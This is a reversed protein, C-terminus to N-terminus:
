LAPQPAAQRDLGGAMREVIDRAQSDRAIQEAMFTIMPEAIRCHLEAAPDRFRESPPAEVMPIRTCADGYRCSLCIRGREERARNLRQRGESSLIDDIGQAFVNGLCYEQVYADSYNYVDGNTNVILTWEMETPDYVPAPEGRIVNVAALLYDWLPYVLIPPDPSALQELAVAKFAALVQEPRLLLDAMRAPAELMSFGPLIRYNLGLESFFRFSEVARNVNQAHLVGIAGVGLRQAAGSDFLAQLNRLVRDRSDRGSGDVRQEGFADVSVSLSIKLEELLELRGRPIAYLNTQLANRYPIGDAGFHREQLAILARLYAEPLLLPEGGHLSFLLPATWASNRYRAALSEFFRELGPLPM